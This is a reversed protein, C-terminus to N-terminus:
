GRREVLLGTAAADESGPHLLAPDLRLLQAGSQSDLLVIASVNGDEGEEFQVAVAAPDHGPLFEEVVRAIRNKAQPQRRSYGPNRSSDWDLTRPGIHVADVNNLKLDSM